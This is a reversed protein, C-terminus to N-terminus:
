EEEVNDIVYFKWKSKTKKGEKTAKLGKWITSETVGLVYALCYVHDRIAVPLEYKDNTVALYARGEIWKESKM